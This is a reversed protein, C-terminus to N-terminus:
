KVVLRFFLLFSIMDLLFKLRFNNQSDPGIYYNSNYINYIIITGFSAIDYRM